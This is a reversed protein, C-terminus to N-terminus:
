EAEYKEVFPQGGEWSLEIKLSDTPGTINIKLGSQNPDIYKRPAHWKQSQANLSENAIIAVKHDGPVCGDNDDYTTLRFKGGPGLKGSAARDNDPLVQVFGYELPEGDILVTGAVPFRKPRNDGCGSWLTLILLSLSLSLLSTKHNMM